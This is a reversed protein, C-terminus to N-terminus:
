LNLLLWLVEADHCVFISLVLHDNLRVDVYLRIEDLGLNVLFHAIKISSGANQLCPLSQQLLIEAGLM